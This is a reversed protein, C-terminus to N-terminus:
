APRGKAPEESASVARARNVGSAQKLSVGAREKWAADRIGQARIAERRQVHHQALLRQGCHTWTRAFGRWQGSQHHEVDSQRVHAAQFRAAPQALKGVHRHDEQGGAAIFDVADHAQFDAGVIVDGLRKRRAFQHRADADDQAARTGRLGRALSAHRYGAWSQSRRGRAELQARQLRPHQEVALGKSSCGSWTSDRACSIARTHLPAGSVSSRVTSACTLDSRALSRATSACLSGM